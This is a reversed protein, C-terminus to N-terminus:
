VKIKMIVYINGGLPLSFILFIYVIDYLLQLKNISLRLFASCTANGLIIHGFKRLQATLYYKILILDQKHTM